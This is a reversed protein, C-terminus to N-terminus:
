FHRRGGKELKMPKQRDLDRCQRAFNFYPIEINEGAALKHFHENLLRMDLCAPSEYDIEGTPTRPATKPDVTLFYNDLSVLSPPSATGIFRTPLSIRHQQKKRFWIPRFASCDPKFRHEPMNRRCGQRGQRKFLNECDQIYALPDTSIRKNIVSLDYIM